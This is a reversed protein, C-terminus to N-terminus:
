TNNNHYLKFLKFLLTEAHIIEKLSHISNINFKYLIQVVELKNTDNFYSTDLKLFHECINVILEHINENHSQYDYILTRIEYLSTIKKNILHQIIKESTIEIISKRGPSIDLIELTSFIISLNYKYKTIIHQIDLKRKKNIKKFETMIKLSDVIDIITPSSIRLCFFAGHLAKIVSSKTRSILIFKVYSCKETKIKLYSIIEPTALHINRLIILKYKFINNISKDHCLSELIDIIKKKINYKHLSIEYHYQSGWVGIEKFLLGKNSFQIPRISIKKNTLNELQRLVISYKGCGQPGSVLISGTFDKDFLRKIKIVYEKNIIFDNIHKPLIKDKLFVM